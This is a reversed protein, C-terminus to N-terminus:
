YKVNRKMTENFKRRRGKKEMYGELIVEVTSINVLGSDVDITVAGDLNETPSSSLDCAECNRITVITIVANLM